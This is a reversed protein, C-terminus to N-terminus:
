ATATLRSARTRGRRPRVVRGTRSSGPERALREFIGVLRDLGQDAMVADGGEPRVADILFQVEALARQRTPGSAFGADLLARGVLALKRRQPVVTRRTISDQGRAALLVGIEQYILRAAHIAPRCGAPLAGIGSQSRGYLRDAEAILRRIVSALRSDFVPAALFSQPSLGAEEMWELPLYLRGARADEGVDRAINTLQMAVGLDCARALVRPDRRGMLLTMLTGVTGAVRACYSILDSLTEYTRGGVDWALGEILADFVSRPLDHARVVVALARDVPDDAPVGAFIGDLRAHLRTIATAADPSLDVADDAVRCFAYLVTAPERVSSPLLLSAAFFSRSGAQLLSRCAAVDAPDPRSPAAM